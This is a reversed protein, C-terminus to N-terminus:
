KAASDFVIQAPAFGAALAQALEGPSAVECGMGEARLLRLIGELCGAKAAFAHMFHNPFSSKLSAVATRVADVDIFGALPAGGGLRGRAVAAAAIRAKRDSVSDDM